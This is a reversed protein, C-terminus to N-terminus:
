LQVQPNIKILNLSKDPFQCRAFQFQRSSMTFKLKKDFIYGTERELRRSYDKLVIGCIRVWADIRRFLLKVIPFTAM